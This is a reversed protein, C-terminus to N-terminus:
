EKAVQKRIRSLSEPKIGLYSAIHKLSIEQLLKPHRGALEMYRETASKTLLSIEREEKRRYIREANLRGIREAKKYTECLIDLDHKSFPYVELTNLAEVAM